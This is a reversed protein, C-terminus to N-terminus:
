QLLITLQNEPTVEMFGGQIDFLRQGVKSKTRISGKALESILPAHNPLVTIEGSTTPLTASDVHDHFLVEKLSVIKLELTDTMTIRFYSNIDLSHSRILRTPKNTAM